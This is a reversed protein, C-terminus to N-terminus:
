KMPFFPLIRARLVVNFGDYRNVPSSPYTRARMESELPRIAQVWGSSTLYGAVGGLSAIRARPSGVIRPLKGRLTRPLGQRRPM